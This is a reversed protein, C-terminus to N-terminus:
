LACDIIWGLVTPSPLFFSSRQFVRVGLQEFANLPLYVSGAVIEGLRDGGFLLACLGLAVHCLSLAVCIAIQRKM